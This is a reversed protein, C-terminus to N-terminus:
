QKHLKLKRKIDKKVITFDRNNICYALKAIHAAIIPKLIPVKRLIKQQFALIQKENETKWTGSFHHITATNNTIEIKGTQYDKPCFVEKPYLSLGEIVQFMNNLKLGKGLCLRTIAEVNTTLDMGGNPLVFSRNEYDELLLKFLEFGRESAMIGTPISEPTEFGSFAQNDLFEDLSRLVEVDTDMYIGGHNVLVWLRVYDSVFAWKKAQYAELCYQNCGVDFSSEDWRIIKYDPLYKEWSALCKKEKEGLPRGGFWIYHITKPIM